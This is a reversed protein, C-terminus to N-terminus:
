INKGYFLYVLQFKDLLVIMDELSLYLEVLFFNDGEGKYM